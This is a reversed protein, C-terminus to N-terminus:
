PQHVSTVTFDSSGSGSGSLSIVSSGTEFAYPSISKGWIPEPGCYEPDDPHREKCIRWVDILFYLTDVANPDYYYGSYAVITFLKGTLTSSPLNLTFTGDSVISQEVFWLDQAEPHVGSERYSSIPTTLRTESAVSIYVSVGGGGDGNQRAIGLPIFVYYLVPSVTYDAWYQPNGINYGPGINPGNFSCPICGPSLGTPIHQSLSGSGDSLTVSPSESGVTASASGSFSFSGAFDVFQSTYLELAQARTMEILCTKDVSGDTPLQPVGCLLLPGISTSM